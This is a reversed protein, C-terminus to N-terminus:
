VNRAELAWRWFSVTTYICCITSDSEVLTQPPRDTCLKLSLRCAVVFDWLTHSYCISCIYLQIMRFILVQPDFCTSSFLIKHIFLLRQMLDTIVICDILSARDCFCWVIFLRSNFTGRFTLRSMGRFESMSLLRNQIHTDHVCGFV